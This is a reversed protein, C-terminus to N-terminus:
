SRVRLDDSIVPMKNFDIIEADFEENKLRGQILSNALEGFSSAHVCRRKPIRFQGGSETGCTDVTEPCAALGHHCQQRMTCRMLVVLTVALGQEDRAIENL